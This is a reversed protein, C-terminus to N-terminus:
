CRSASWSATATAIRTGPRFDRYIGRRIQSGEARVTIRETVDLSGDDAVVVTSDYALIREQAHAPFALMAVLLLSAARITRLWRNM